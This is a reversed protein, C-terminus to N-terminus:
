FSVQFKVGLQSFVQVKSGVGAFDDIDGDADLDEYLNVKMDNDRLVHSQVFVAIGDIVNLDIEGTFSIDLESRRTYDIFFISAITITMRPISSNTFSVRAYSGATGDVTRGSPVGYQTPDVGRDAVVALKMALPTAVVSLGLSDQRYDIGVGGTIYGPALFNSIYDDGSDDFVFDYGPWVQSQLDGFLVLHLNETIRYGAKVNWELRDEIKRPKVSRSRFVSFEGSLTSQFSWLDSSWVPSINMSLGLAYSYDEGGAAWNSYSVHSVTGGISANWSWPTDGYELDDQACLPSVSIAFLSVTLVLIRLLPDRRPHQPIM